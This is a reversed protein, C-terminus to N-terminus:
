SVPGLLQSLYKIRENYIDVESGDVRKVPQAYARTGLMFRRVEHTIDHLYGAAQERVLTASIDRYSADFPQSRVYRAFRQNQPQQLLKNLAEEGDNGRPVVLLEALNFLAALSADRDKYYRPDFIQEIKDFGMLFLIRKVRPFSHRIAQAQEVYLGRNFLLIGAQPLRRRLIDQLLIVRDLLLPREVSEKDVTRKSFAAYLHVPERQTEAYRSGQKLLALHAITPPNFSGTFIIVTDNPEKTDPVCVVEPDATPQLHDLLRQVRKLRQLQTTSIYM